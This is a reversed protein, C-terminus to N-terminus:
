KRISQIAKEILNIVEVAEDDTLFDLRYRGDYADQVVKGVVAPGMIAHWDDSLPDPYNYAITAVHNVEPQYHVASEDMM